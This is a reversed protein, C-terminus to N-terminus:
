DFVGTARGLLMFARATRTDALDAIDQDTAVKEFEVLTQDFKRLFHHVADRFITDARMRATTLALSSRDRIGGLDAVARGREGQAFRRWLEPRARDPALDDMYIGDQSLLTLVDQSAQVIQVVRRDALARRLAAFGERDETTEPFNLARIFDGVSLDQPPPPPPPMLALDPQEGETVQAAPTPAPSETAQRISTFMALTTQTKRSVRAIEDLKAEVASRAGTGQAQVQALYAQRLADVASQLRETEAGLAQMRALLVVGGGVILVPVLAAVVVLLISADDGGGALWVVLGVWAVCVAAAAVTGLGIGSQVPGRRAYLGLADPSSRPTDQGQGAPATM